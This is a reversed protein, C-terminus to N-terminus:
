KALKAMQRLRHKLVHIQRKITPLQDKKGAKLADDRKAQLKHIQMKVRTKQEGKASAHMHVGLVQCLVPLLQEKHRTAYGELQEHQARLTQALERLQVVTMEKLQEYTYSAM